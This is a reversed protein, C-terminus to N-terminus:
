EPTESQTERPTVVADDGATLQELVLQVASVADPVSAAVWAGRVAGGALVRVRVHGQEAWARLVLVVSTDPDVHM